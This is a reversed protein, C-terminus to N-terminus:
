VCRGYGKQRKRVQPCYNPRHHSRRVAGRLVAPHHTRPYGACLNPKGPPVTYWVGPLVLHADQRRPLESKAAQMILRQDLDFDEKYHKVHTDVLKSLEEYIDVDTKKRM